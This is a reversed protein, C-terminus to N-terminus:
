CTWQLDQVGLAEHIDPSHDIICCLLAKVHNTDEMIQMLTETRCRLVNPAFVMALNATSMKTHSAFQSLHHLFSILYLALTQHEEPMSESQLLQVVEAILATHDDAKNKAADIFRPYLDFLFLPEPMERLYLKFLGAVTALSSGQFDATGQTDYCRQLRKIDDGEGPVRFLGEELHCNHHLLWSTCHLVVCPVGYEKQVDSLPRGFCLGPPGRPALGPASAAHPVVPSGKGEEIYGKRELEARQPRQSLWGDLFDKVWEPLPM